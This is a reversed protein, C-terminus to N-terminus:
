LMAFGNSLARRSTNRTEKAGSTRHMHDMLEAIGGERLEVVDGHLSDGCDCQWRLRTMGPRLAPELHGTAILIGDTALMLADTGLYLMIKATMTMNGQCFMGDVAHKVDELWDQWTLHTKSQLASQSSCQQVCKEKPAKMNKPAGVDAIHTSKPTVFAQVQARLTKFAESEVLFERFLALDEFAEENVLRTEPSEDDDEDSSEDHRENGSKWPNPRGGRLKEVLSNAVQRSKVLVLRAALYELRETAEIELQGAFAKFIRRLNRQLREPGINPNDIASKYMPLLTADKHFISLLVKTATEIQVTSYGSSGSIVSTSSALSITSFVSAISTAYSSPQSINDPYYRDIENDDDELLKTSMPSAHISEKSGGSYTTDLTQGRIPATIPSQKAKREVNLGHDIDQTSLMEFFEPHDFTNALLIQRLKFNRNYLKLEHVDRATGPTLFDLTQLDRSSANPSSADELTPRAELGRHDETFVPPPRIIQREEEHAHEYVPEPVLERIIIPQPAYEQIIIPQMQMQMPEPSPQPSGKDFSIDDSQPLSRSQKTSTADKTMGTTSSSRIASDLASIVDSEFESPHEVHDLFLPDRKGKSMKATQLAKSKKGAQTKDLLAAKGASSQRRLKRTDNDKSGDETNSAHEVAANRKQYLASTPTTIRPPIHIPISAIDDLKSHYGTPRSATTQSQHIDERFWDRLYDQRSVAPCTMNRLAQVKRTDHIHRAQTLKVEQEKRNFSDKTNDLGRSKASVQGLISSRANADRAEKLIDVLLNNLHTSRPNAAEPLIPDRLYSRRSSIRDSYDFTSEERGKSAYEEYLKTSYHPTRRGIGTVPPNKSPQNSRMRDQSDYHTSRLGEKGKSGGSIVLDAMGNEAPLMRRTRGEMDGNFQISLPANADVRLRVESEGNDGTGTDPRDARSWDGASAQISSELNFKLRRKSVTVKPPKHKTASPFPRPSGIDQSDDQTSPSKDYCDVEKARSFLPQPPCTGSM